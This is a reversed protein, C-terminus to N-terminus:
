EAGTYLRGAYWSLYSEEVREQTPGTRRAFEVTGQEVPWMASVTFQAVQHRSLGVSFLVLQGTVGDVRVCRYFSNHHSQFDHTHHGLLFDSPTSKTYDTIISPRELGQVTKLTMVKM